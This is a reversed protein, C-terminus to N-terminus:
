EGTLGEVVGIRRWRATTVKWGGEERVLGAEIRWTDGAQPLKGALGAGEGGRVLAADLVVEARDGDVRVQTAVPVVANWSGRLAHFTVFQQFERRGMGQGAFRESVIALVDAPRRAEVARAAGDLLARIREEDTPEPRLHRWAVAAGLAALAAVVVVAATTRSIRMETGPLHGTSM